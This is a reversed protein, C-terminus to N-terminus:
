PAKSRKGPLARTLPLLATEKVEEMVFYSHTNEVMPLGGIVGGLLDRYEQMDGVRVKLLYDFGGGTMHCELVQPVPRIARNFAILSNEDTSKLQVTVFVLLGQGLAQPSLKAHYGQIVGEQELKKLRLNAPTASLHIRKALEVVPLRGEAQLASLIALDAPDLTAPKRPTTM